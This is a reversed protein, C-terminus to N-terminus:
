LCTLDPFTQDARRDLITGKLKQEFVFPCQIISLTKLHERCKVLVTTRISHGIGESSEHREEIVTLATQLGDHLKTRTKTTHDHVHHLAFNHYGWDKEHHEKKTSQMPTISVKKFLKAGTEFHKLISRDVRHDLKLRALGLFDGGGGPDQTGLAEAALTLLCPVLHALGKSHSEFYPLFPMLVRHVRARAPVPMQGIQWWALFGQCTGAFQRRRFSNFRLNTLPGGEAGEGAGAGADEARAGAGAGEGPPRAADAFPEGSPEVPEPEVGDPRM